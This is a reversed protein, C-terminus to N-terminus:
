PGPAVADIGRAMQSMADGFGAIISLTVAGLAGVALVAGVAIALGIWGARARSELEKRSALLVEDLRGTAEGAAIQSVVVPPLGPLEALAAALSAGADLRAVARPGAESFGPAGSGAEAALPLAERVSVGSAISAGLVDVFSALADARAGAGLLPVRALLRQAKSSLRGAPDLRPLVGFLFVPLGVLAAVGPFAASLYAALGRTFAVPAPSIVALALLLLYPYVVVTLLRNRAKRRDAIRDAIAVLAAPQGGHTEKARLLGASPGDM